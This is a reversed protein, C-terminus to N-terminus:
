RRSPRYRRRYGKPPRQTALALHKEGMSPETESKDRALSGAQNAGIARWGINVGSFKNQIQSVQSQYPGRAQFIRRGFAKGVRGGCARLVERVQRRCEDGDAANVDHSIIRDVVRLTQNM